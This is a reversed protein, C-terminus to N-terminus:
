RHERGQQAETSQAVGAAASAAGAGARIETHRIQGGLNAVYGVVGIAAFVAVVATVTVRRAVPRRRYVVLAILAFVGIAVMVATAAVAADEHRETIERSFTPLKEIAQEAPGGTAFVLATAGGLLVLFGFAVKTLEDSHRLVAVSLLLAAFVVGIVPAHNLM